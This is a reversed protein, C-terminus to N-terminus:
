KKAAENIAHTVWIQKDDITQFCVASNSQGIIDGARVGTKTPLLTPLMKGNFLRYKMGEITALAGPSSDSM